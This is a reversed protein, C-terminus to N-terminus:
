DNKRRKINYKKKKKIKNEMPKKEYWNWIKNNVQREFNNKMMIKKRKGIERRNIRREEKKVENKILDKIRDM